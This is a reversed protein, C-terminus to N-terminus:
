RLRALDVRQLLVRTNLWASRKLRWLRRTSQFSALTAWQETSIRLSKHPDLTWSQNEKPSLWRLSHHCEERLWWKRKCVWSEERRSDRKNNKSVKSPPFVRVRVLIRDRRFILSSLAIKLWSRTSSITAQGRREQQISDRLCLQIYSPVNTVRAPVRRGRARSSPQQQNSLANNCNSSIVSKKRSKDGSTIRQSFCFRWWKWM